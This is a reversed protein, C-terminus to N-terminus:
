KDKWLQGLRSLAAAVAIATDKNKVVYGPKQKWSGGTWSWIGNIAKTEEPENGQNLRIKLTPTWDSSEVNRMPAEIDPQYLCWVSLGNISFIDTWHLPKLDGFTDNHVISLVGEERDFSVQLYQTGEPCGKVYKTFAAQTTLLRQLDDLVKDIDRKDCATVNYVISTKTKDKEVLPAVNGTDSLPPAAFVAQGGALVCVLSAAVVILNLIPWHRRRSAPMFLSHQRIM